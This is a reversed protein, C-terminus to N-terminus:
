GKEKKKKKRKRQNTDTSIGAHTCLSTDVESHIQTGNPLRETGKDYVMVKVPLTATNEGSRCEVTLEEQLVFGLHQYLPFGMPSAEVGIAIGARRGQDIGWKSLATAAGRRRYDPHTTLLILHYNEPYTQEWYKSKVYGMTKGFAVRRALDGDRRVYAKSISWNEVTTICGNIPFSEETAVLFTKRPNYLDAKFSQLWFFYCDDPYEHRHNWLFDFTPDDPLGALCVATIRPLDRLEAPRIYFPSPPSM